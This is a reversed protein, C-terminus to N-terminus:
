FAPDEMDTGAAETAHREAADLLGLRDLVTQVTDEDYGRRALQGAIRRLTQIPDTTTQKGLRREAFALAAEVPDRPDERGVSEALDADFGHRTLRASVAAPAFGERRRWNEAQSRALAADNLIGTRECEDLVIDVATEAYGRAALRERLTARALSRRELLRLARGYVVRVEAATHVADAREPTWPAGTRAGLREIDIARVRAVAAGDVEIIAVDPTRDNLRVATIRPGDNM